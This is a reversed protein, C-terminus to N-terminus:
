NENGISIKKPFAPFWVSDELEGAENFFSIEDYENCIWVEKAGKEFYLSRKTEMERNTNSMSVVEVCIEPAISADTENKIKQIIEMSAWAADAVKTGKSTRIACEVMAIGEPRMAKMLSSIEGQYISHGIKVPNMIIEGYENTEIKFPLDRLSPHNIVEAWDM